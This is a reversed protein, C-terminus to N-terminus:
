RERQRNNNIRSLQKNEEQIMRRIKKIWEPSLEAETTRNREIHTVVRIEKIVIAM